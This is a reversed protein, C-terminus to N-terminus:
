VPLNSNQKESVRQTIFISYVFISSHLVRFSLLDSLSFVTYIRLWAGSSSLRYFTVKIEYLCTIKGYIYVFEYLLCGFLVM